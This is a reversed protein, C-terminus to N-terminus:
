NEVPIGLYAYVERLGLTDLCYAHLQPHTQQLRQLRNPYAEAQIGFGCFLCATRQYGMDYIPCYALGRQYIYDWIDQDTWYAIPRSVPRITDSFVNCGHVLIHSKRKQSEAALLGVFPVRGTQAEYKRVTRIKMMECCKDSVQFPADLLHRWKYPIKFKGELLSAAYEPRKTHRYKYVHNSVDISILPYGYTRIVQVFSRTPKLTVVNPITQVFQREEPFGLGTDCYVAPVDPYLARVLDLVVLSDKGGSFAVYVQGAHAQYWQRILFHSFGVKLDLPYSQRIQLAYTQETMAGTRDPRVFGCGVGRWSVIDLWIRERRSLGM